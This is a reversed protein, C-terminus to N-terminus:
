MVEILKFKLQNNDFETHITLETEKDDATFLKAEIGFGEASNYKFISFKTKNIKLKPLNATEFYEFLEEKMEEFIAPNIDFHNKLNKSDMENLYEVLKSNLKFATKIINETTM